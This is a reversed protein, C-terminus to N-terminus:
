SSENEQSKNQQKSAVYDEGEWDINLYENEDNCETCDPQHVEIALWDSEQIWNNYQSHKNRSVQETMVNYVDYKCSEEHQWSLDFKTQLKDYLSIVTEMVGWVTLATGIGTFTLASYGAVLSAYKWTMYSAAIKSYTSTIYLACPLYPAVTQATHIATSTNKVYHMVTGVNHASSHIEQVIPSTYMHHSTKWEVTYTISDATSRLYDLAEETTNENNNNHIEQPLHVLICDELETDDVQQFYNEIMPQQHQQHKM